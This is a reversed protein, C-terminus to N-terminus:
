GGRGFWHRPRRHVGERAGVIKQAVEVLARSLSNRSDALILPKGRNAARAPASGGSPFRYHIPIGLAEEVEQEEIGTDSDARNLILELKAPYLRRFIDLSRRVTMLAVREPSAVVFIKEVADLAALNLDTLGSALDLVLYDHSGKLVALVKELDDPHVDQDLRAFGGAPVVTLGLGKVQYLSLLAKDEALGSSLEEVLDIITAGPNEQIMAGIDGLPDIDLLAVKQESQLALAWALNLAITSKGVGGKASYIAALWPKTSIPAPNLGRIIEALEESLHERDIMHTAQMLLARRAAEANNVAGVLVKRCGLEALSAVLGPVDLLVDDDIILLDEATYHLSIAERANNTRTGVVADPHSGLISSVVGMVVPQALVHVTIM